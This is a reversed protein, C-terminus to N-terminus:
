RSLLCVIETWTSIVPQLLFCGCMRRVKLIAIHINECNLAGWKVGLNSILFLQQSNHWEWLPQFYLNQSDKEPIKCTKHYDSNTQSSDVHRKIHFLVNNTRNWPVNELNDGVLNKNRGLFDSFLGVFDPFTRSNTCSKNPSHNQAWTAYM